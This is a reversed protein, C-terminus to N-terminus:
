SRIALAIPLVKASTRCYSFSNSAAAVQYRRLMGAVSLFPGEVESSRLRGGLLGLVGESRRLCNALFGFVSEANRLFLVVFRRSRVGFGKAYVIKDGLGPVDFGKMGSAIYEEIDPILAQVRNETDLDPKSLEVARAVNALNFSVLATVILFSRLMGASRRFVWSTAASLAMAGVDGPESLSDCDVKNRPYDKVSAKGWIKAGSLNTAGRTMFSNRM